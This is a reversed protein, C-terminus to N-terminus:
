KEVKFDIRIRYNNPSVQGCKVINLIKISGLKQKVLEVVSDFKGREAFSYLHIIGYNKLLSAAVGLYDKATKPLPMIIRDFRVNLKPCVENVDGLLFKVNNLKNLKSNEEAYRHAVPNIEIGYVQRAKGYKSIVFCYAGIGSFMVLVNEGTKVMKAISLRDNNLRPSFYVKSIDLKFLLGSERHVAETKNIGALFEYGRVRYEGEHPSLKRFVSKINKNVKLIAEAIARKKHLLNKDIEIVAINGIVDMSRKLNLLEKKTLEKKLIDKVDFKLERKELREDTLRYNEFKEKVPFYIFNSDEKIKYDKDLLKRELLKKKISEAEIKKIKICKM